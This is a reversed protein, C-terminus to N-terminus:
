NVYLTLATDMPASSANAMRPMHAPPVNPASALAVTATTALPVPMAAKAPLRAAKAMTSVLRARAAARPRCIILMIVYIYDLGVQGSESGAPCPQCSNSGGLGYNGPTCDVCNGRNDRGQGARCNNNRDREESRSHALMYVAHM